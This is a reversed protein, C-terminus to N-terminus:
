VAADILVDAPQFLSKNAEVIFEGLQNAISGQPTLAVLQQTRNRPDAFHERSRQERLQGFQPHKIALLDGCQGAERWKVAITPFQTAATTDPSSAGLDPADQIHRRHRSHAAIGGDSSEIQSQTAVTLVGHRREGGAHALEENNEIGHKV